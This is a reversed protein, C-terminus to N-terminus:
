NVGERPAPPTTAKNYGRPRIAMTNDIRTCRRGDSVFYGYEFSPTARGDRALQERITNELVQPFAFRLELDTSGGLEFDVLM